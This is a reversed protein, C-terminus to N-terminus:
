HVGDVVNIRYVGIMDSITDVQEIQVSIGQDAFYEVFAETGKALEAMMYVNEHELLGSSMSDMGFTALKDEYSPSKVLWGGMIDYNGFTNDVEEFMKESYPTGIYPELPYSVASYVDFFYFNDPHSRCYDKMGKDVVNAQLRYEYSIDTEEVAAPLSFVATLGFVVPFVVTVPVRNRIKSRLRTGEVHLIALLIGFEMLYLSHTIRVPDRGRMLIFMWLATRVLFLFALVGIGIGIHLKRMSATEEEGRGWLLTLVVSLYGFIVMVNWPYDDQVSSDAPEKHVMRYVYLRAKEVFLSLFSLKEGKHEAQYESIADLQDAELTDDLGFNYQNFLMYQESETLELEEYLVENGEYSPIGQFDYLETRSDFYAVYKKWDASGFAVEHILTTLVMGALIAGIVTLYKRFNEKQWIEKEIAWRYIGAVCVLPLLLAFMESRLMYALVALLIAPINQLVFHRFSAEGSTIFLYAAAATLMGCTFTYQVFVLHPLILTLIVIGSVASVAMKSWTGSCFRLSREVILWLSGYQCLCLFIGYVPAGPFLRYLLSIGMSLPYQMQINHGEPVGTYVGSLIDKMLVDDNLDFYYDYRLGVFLMLLLILVSAIIKNEHRRYFSKFEM